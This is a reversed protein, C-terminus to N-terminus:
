AARRRIKTRAPRLKAVADLAQQAKFGIGPFSSEPSLVFQPIAIVATM